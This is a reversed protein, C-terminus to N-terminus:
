SEGVTWLALPEYRSGRLELLEICTVEVPGLHSLREALKLLAPGQSEEPSRVCTVHWRWRAPMALPSCTGDRLREWAADLAETQCVGIVISGDGGELREVGGLRVPVPMTFAHRVQAGVDALDVEPPVWYCLTMHPPIRAAQMPDHEVRWAQILDGLAGSVRAVLVRRGQPSPASSPGHKDRLKKLGEILSAPAGSSAGAVAEPM